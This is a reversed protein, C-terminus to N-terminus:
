RCRSPPKASDNAVGPTPWKQQLHPEYRDSTGLSIDRSQPGFRVRHIEVGKANLLAVVEGLKVNLRFNTHFDKGDTRKRNAPNKNEFFVVLYGKPQIATDPPFTWQKPLAQPRDTLFWGGVDIAVDTPNYLEIWDPDDGFSDCYARDNGVMLESIFVSQAAACSAVLVISVVMLTRCTM